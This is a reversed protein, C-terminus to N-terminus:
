NGHLPMRMYTAVQKFIRVVCVWKRVTGIVEVRELINLHTLMHRSVPIKFIYHLHMSYTNWMNGLLGIFM